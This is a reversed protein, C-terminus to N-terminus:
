RGHRRGPRRSNWLAFGSRVSQGRLLAMEQRLVQGSCQLPQIIHFDIRQKRSDGGLGLTATSPRGARRFLLWYSIYLRLSALLSGM